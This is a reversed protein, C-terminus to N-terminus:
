RLVLHVCHGSVPPNRESLRRHVRYFNCRVEGSDIEGDKFKCDRSTKYCFVEKKLSEIMEETDCCEPKQSQLVPFM